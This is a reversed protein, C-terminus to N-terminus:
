LPKTQELLWAHVDVKKMDLLEKGIVEACRSHYKDIWSREEENILDLDILERQIPVLTLPEFCVFNTSSKNKTNAKVVLNCNEIRIGFQGDKYYGPEITIIM